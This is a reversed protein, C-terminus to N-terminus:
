RDGVVRSNGQVIRVVKGMMVVIENYGVTDTTFVLQMLFNLTDGTKVRKSLAM